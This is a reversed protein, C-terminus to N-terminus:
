RPLFERRDRPKSVHHRPNRRRQSRHHVGDFEFGAGASFGSLQSDILGLLLDGGYGFDFTSTASYTHNEDSSGAYNAGLIATGFVMDRPGLLTGAVNHAGDTLTASYAKDPLATSFAYAAQDSNVFAHGSAGEVIAGTTASPYDYSPAIATATTTVGAFSTKATSSASVSDSSFESFGPAQAASLARAEAGNVTEANSIAQANSPYLYNDTPGQTAVATAIAKGGGAALANATATASGGFGGQDIGGAGAGGTATASSLADGSGSAMGTSSANADGGHGGFGEGMTGSGGNASASVTANGNGSSGTALATAAGGSGGNGIQSGPVGSELGNNGGTGGNAEADAGASGSFVATAATAKASGGNGGDGPGDSFTAGNGGDGGIGGVATAENSPGPSNATATADGGTGGEGGSDGPNVGNAGNEGPAGQVTVDEAHVGAASATILALSLGATQLLRTLFSM